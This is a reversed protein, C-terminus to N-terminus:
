STLAAAGQRALERPVGDARAMGAEGALPEPDPCNAYSIGGALTGLAGSRDAGNLASIDAPARRHWWVYARFRPTGDAWLDLPGYECRLVRQGCAAARAALSRLPEIRAASRIRLDRVPAFSAVRQAQLRLSGDPMRATKVRETTALRAFEFKDRRSKYARYASTNDALARALRGADVVLLFESASATGLSSRVAEVWRDLAARAPRPIGADIEGGNVLALADIRARSYLDSTGHTLLPVFYSADKVSLLEAFRRRAADRQDPLGASAFFEARAKAIEANFQAVTWKKHAGARIVRALERANADGIAFSGSWAVQAGANGALSALLALAQWWKSAVM